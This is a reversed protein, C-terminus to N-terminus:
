ITTLGESIMRLRMASPANFRYATFDTVFLAILHCLPIGGLASAIPISYGSLWYLM